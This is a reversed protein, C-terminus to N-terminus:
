KLGTGLMFSYLSKQHGSISPQYSVGVNLVVKNVTFYLVAGVEGVAEHSVKLFPLLDMSKYPIDGTIIFEGLGSGENNLGATLGLKVYPNIDYEVLGKMQSQDKNMELLGAVKIDPHLVSGGVIQGHLTYDSFDVSSAVVRLETTKGKHPLYSYADCCEFCCILFVAMGLFIKDKGKKGKKHKGPM